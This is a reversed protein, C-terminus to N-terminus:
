KSLEDVLTINYNQGEISKFGLFNRKAELKENDRNVQHKKYKWEFWRDLLILGWKILIPVKIAEVKKSKYSYTTNFTGYTIDERKISLCGYANLDLSYQKHDVVKEYVKDKM